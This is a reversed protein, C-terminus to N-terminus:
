TNFDDKSAAVDRKAISFKINGWYDMLDIHMKPDESKLFSMWGQIHLELKEFEENNHKKSELNYIKARLLRKNKRGLTVVNENNYILGTVKRQKGQHLLRTKKGNLEYGYKLLINTIEKKTDSLRRKSNSSLTIDDAYRTYTINSISCLKTIEDDLSKNILNSLYPSTVGGQPLGGNITCFNTFMISAQKSYGLSNFFNFIREKKTSPFFNKLDLCLLYENGIHPVLNESLKKGNYATANHHVPFKELLMRLIWAQIAKLKFSPCALIRTGNGHKKPIEVIKYFYEPKKSIKYLTGASIKTEISFDEITDVKPLDLLNIM